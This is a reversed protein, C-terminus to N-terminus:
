RRPYRAYGHTVGHEHGDPAHRHSVIASDRNTDCDTNTDPQQRTDGDALDDQQAHPRRFVTPVGRHELLRPSRQM